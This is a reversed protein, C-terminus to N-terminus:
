HKFLLHVFSTGKPLLKFTKKSTGKSLLKEVEEVEGNLILQHLMTAKEGPLQGQFFLLFRM